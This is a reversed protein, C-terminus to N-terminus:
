FCANQQITDSLANIEISREQKKEKESLTIELTLRTLLLLSFFPHDLLVPYM